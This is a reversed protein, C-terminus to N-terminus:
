VSTYKEKLFTRGREAEENPITFMANHAGTLAIGGIGLSISAGAAITAAATAYMVHRTKISRRVSNAKQLYRLLPQKPLFVGSVILHCHRIEFYKREKIM